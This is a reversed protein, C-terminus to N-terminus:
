EQITELIWDVFFFREKTYGLKPETYNIIEDYTWNPAQEGSILVQIEMPEFCKLSDMSFV